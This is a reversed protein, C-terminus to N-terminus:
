EVCAGDSGDFQTNITDRDTERSAKLNQEFESVQRMAVMAM